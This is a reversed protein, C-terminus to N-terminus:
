CNSQTNKLTATEGAPTEYQCASHAMGSSKVPICCPSGSPSLVHRHRHRHGHSTNCNCKKRPLFVRELICMCFRPGSVPALAYEDFGWDKQAWFLCFCSCVSSCPASISFPGGHGHGLSMCIYLSSCLPYVPLPSTMIPSTPSSTPTKPLLMQAPWPGADVLLM